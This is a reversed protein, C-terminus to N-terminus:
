QEDDSSSPALEELDSLAPKDPGMMTSMTPGATQVSPEAGVPDQKPVSEIVSADLTHHNDADPDDDSEAGSSAVEEEMLLTSHQANGVSQPVTEVDEDAFDSLVEEELEEEELSIGVAPLAGRLLSTEPEYAAAVRDESLLQSPADLGSGGVTISATKDAGPWLLRESHSSSGSGQSCSGSGQSNISGGSPLRAPAALSTPSGGPSHGSPGLLSLGEQVRSVGAVVNAAGQSEVHLTANAHEGDQHDIVVQTESGALPSLNQSSVAGLHSDRQLENEPSHRSDDQEPIEHVSDDQCFTVQQPPQSPFARSRPPTSIRRIGELPSPRRRSSASSPPSSSPPSPRRGQSASGSTSSTHDAEGVAWAQKAAGVKEEAIEFDGVQDSAEPNGPARQAKLHLVNKVSPRLRDRGADPTRPGQVMSAGPSTSRPGAGGAVTRASAGRMPRLLDAHPASADPPPRPRLNISAATPARPARLRDVKGDGQARPVLRSARGGPPRLNQGQMDLFSEWPDLKEHAEKGESTSDKLDKLLGQVTERSRVSLQREGPPPLSPGAGQAEEVGEAARPGSAQMPALRVRDVRGLLPTLTARSRNARPSPLIPPLPRLSSMRARSGDSASEELAVRPLRSEGFGNTMNFSQWALAPEAAAHEADQSSPGRSASMAERGYVQECEREPTYKDGDPAVKNKSWWGSAMSALSMKSGAGKAKTQSPRTTAILPPALPTGADLIKNSQKREKYRRHFRRAAYAVIGAVLAGVVYVLYETSAEVEKAADALTEAPDGGQTSSPEAVTGEPDKGITKPEFSLLSGELGAQGLLKGLGQTGLTEIQQELSTATTKWTPIVEIYLKTSVQSRRQAPRAAERRGQEEDLVEVLDAPLGLSSAIQAAIAEKVTEGLGSADGAVELILLLKQGPVVEVAAFSLGSALVGGLGDTRCSRATILTQGATKVFITEDQLTSVRSGSLDCSPLKGQEKTWVVRDPSVATIEVYRVYKDGVM